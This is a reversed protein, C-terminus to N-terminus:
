EAPNIDTLYYHYFLGTIVFILRHDDDLWYTTPIIGEGIQQYGSLDLTRNKFIFPYRGISQLKQKKRVFHMEDLMDFSLNNKHTQDLASLAYFLLWNSTLNKATKIKQTGLGKIKRTIVGDKFEAKEVLQAEPRENQYCDYVDCQLDWNLPTLLEDNKCKITTKIKQSGLNNKSNFNNRFVVDYEIDFSVSEGVLANATIMLMATNRNCEICSDESWRKYILTNCKNSTFRHAPLDYVDFSDGMWKRSWHQSKQTMDYVGPLIFIIGSGTACHNEFGVM